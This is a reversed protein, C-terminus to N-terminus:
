AASDQLVEMIKHNLEKPSIPKALFHLNEGIGFGDTLSQLAYGSIFIVKVDPNLTKMEGFAARGSKHPMIVDMLVLNIEDMCALYKTVADDGDCAELVRYGTDQLMSSLSKRVMSDDEVLLITGVAGRIESYRDNKDDAAQREPAPLYINFTTGIGPESYVNIFGGHQKVTGYAMSLGLGTGKGVGKTTFFPEFIKACTDADMGAGSDEVSIVLYSGEHGYGHLKTFAEDMSTRSTRITLAGGDPMADRANAALNMIVQIIQNSDAHVTADEETLILILCIEEGIALRLINEAERITSNLDMPQPNNQQKRGFALLSRTLAAGRRVAKQIEAAFQLGAENDKVKNRLMEAYVTVASLVNTFDHAVGSALQGIAEMKQAQRLQVELKEKEAAALRRESIDRHFCVIHRKDDLEIASAVVDLTIIHGEKHCHEVEFNLVAGDMIRKAREPFIEAQDAVDLDTLDISLIEELTYGHMEAYANNSNSIRGHEDILMIGDKAEALLKRHREESKQLADTKQGLEARQRELSDAMRNFHVGLLGIEDVQGGVDCRSQLNGKELESIAQELMKLRRIFFFDGGFWALIISLSVTILFMTLNGRLARDMNAFIAERSIGYRAQIGDDVGNVSTFAWNRVVGDLGHAVAIGEKLSGIKNTLETESRSKGSSITGDNSRYLLTMNRDIVALIPKHEANMRLKTLEESFWSLEISAFVVARVRNKQDLVPLASTIAPKNYTRTIIYEGVSFRKNEVARRFFLRDGVNVAAPTRVASCFIEGDPRAAAINTYMPLTRNLKTVYASCEASNLTRVAPLEAVANLVQRSGAFLQEIGLAALRATIMAERNMEHEWDKRQEYSSYLMFILVPIGVLAILIM